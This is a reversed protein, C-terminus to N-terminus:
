ENPNKMTQVGPPLEFLNDPLEMRKVETAVSELRYRGNDIVSRLPLSKSISLFRHWNGFKHNVFADPDLSLKSSFLYRETGEKLTFIVEDCKYGLIEAVDKKLEVKLVEDAVESADQISPADSNSMKTYLRNTKNTYIQWQFLSGNGVSKYSGGKVFYELNSGMMLTIQEDTVNPLKSNYTNKYVVKGEFSQGYCSIALFSVFFFTLLRKM